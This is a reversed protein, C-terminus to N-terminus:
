LRSAETDREFSISHKYHYFQISLMIKYMKSKIPLFICLMVGQKLGPFPLCLHGAYISQLVSM